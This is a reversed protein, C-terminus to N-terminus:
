SGDEETLAELIAETARKDGLERIRGATAAAIRGEAGDPMDPDAQAGVLIAVIEILTETAGELWALRTPTTHPQINM